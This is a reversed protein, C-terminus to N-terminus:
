DGTTSANVEDSTGRKDGATDDNVKDEPPDDLCNGGISMIVTWTFGGGGGEPSFSSISAPIELLRLDNSEDDADNGDSGGPVRLMEDINLKRKDGKL